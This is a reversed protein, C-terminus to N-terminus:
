LAIELINLNESSVWWYRRKRTATNVEIPWFERESYHTENDKLITPTM